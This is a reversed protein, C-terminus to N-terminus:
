ELSGFTLLELWGPAANKTLDGLLKALLTYLLMGGGIHEFPHMDDLPFFMIEESEKGREGYRFIGKRGGRRSVCVCVCTPVGPLAQQGGGSGGAPASAGWPDGAFPNGVSASAAAATERARPADAVAPTSHQAAQEPGQELGLLDAFSSSSPPPSAATAVSAAPPLTAAVREWRELAASLVDGASLLAAMDGENPCEQLMAQLCRSPHPLPHQPTYSEPGLPPPTRPTGHPKLPLTCM